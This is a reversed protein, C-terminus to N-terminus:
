YQGDRASLGSERALPWEPAVHLAALRALCPTLDFGHDAADRSMDVV